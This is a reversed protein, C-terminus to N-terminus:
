SRRCGNGTSASEKEVQLLAMADADFGPALVVEYFTEMLAKAVDCNVPRNLAVIGGFASVPDGALAAFYADGLEDRAALGCPLMHKVIAVAPRDWGQVASWAADADLLNNYSIEKGQLKRAALVGHPAAGPALRSYAAASQHPNEGYRLDLQKRGAFTIDAPFIEEETACTPM